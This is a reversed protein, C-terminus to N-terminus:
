AFRVSRGRKMPAKGDDEVAGCPEDPNESKSRGRRREGRALRAERAERARWEVLQQRRRQARAFAQQATPRYGIGNIGIGDDDPELLGTSPPPPPTSARPRPIRDSRSNPIPAHHRSSGPSLSSPPPSKRKLVAHDISTTSHTGDPSIFVDSATNADADFCSRRGNDYGCSGGHDREHGAVGCPRDGLAVVRAGSRCAQLETGSAVRLSASRSGGIDELDLGQLRHVVVTGPSHPATALEEVELAGDIEHHCSGPYLHEVEALTERDEVVLHASVTGRRRRKPTAPGARNPSMLTVRCYARM